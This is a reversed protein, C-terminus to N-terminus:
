DVETREEMGDEFVVILAPKNTEADERALRYASSSSGILPQPNFLNRGDKLIVWGFSAERIEYTTM